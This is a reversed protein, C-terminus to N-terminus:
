WSRGAAYFRIMLALLNSSFLLWYLRLFCVYRIEYSKLAQMAKHVDQIEKAPDVTFGAFKAGWINLLLVLAATFAPIQVSFRTLVGNQNTHNTTLAPTSAFSVPFFASMISKEKRRATDM